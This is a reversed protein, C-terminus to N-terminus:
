PPNLQFKHKNLIALVQNVHQLHQDFNDSYILIDDSMIRQFLPPSNKLGQTLVNFEFLGHTTIFATKHKDDEKIPIQFYGSKLDLKSYYRR